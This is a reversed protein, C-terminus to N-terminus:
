RVVVQKREGPALTIRRERTGDRNKASIRHEGPPLRLTLPSSGAAVGDISIEGYPLVVVELTAIKGGRPPRAEAAPEPADPAGVHRRVVPPESPADPPVGATPGPIPSEPLVPETAALRSHETAREPVPPRRPERTAAVALLAGLALAAAAIALKPGRGLRARPPEADTGLDLRPALPQTRPIPAAPQSTRPETPASGLQSVAAAPELSPRRAARAETVRRGLERRARAPVPLTSLAELLASASQMRHEPDPELLSEIITVLADPLEPAREALPTREGRAARELTELDTAGDHPAVGTAAEYLLAGLSFLDCRVDFRGSRAYEPALYPVKGKVIGTRTHQPGELPRAIGFDSLKVEGELSILTNSPSVDRHAIPGLTADGGARHAFDLATALEVAVYLVLEAPLPGSALLQSLDLGDVLELALYYGAGDQGFDLVQTISAHRLRAVLAAEALFQRVRDPDDAHDPRIVKLCVRQEFGGPGHRVAVYTEAMGGVGLRRVVEYPGIRAKAQAPSNM